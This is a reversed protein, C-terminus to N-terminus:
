ARMRLCCDPRILRNRLLSTNKSTLIMQIDTEEAMLSLVKEALGYHYFADFEDMFLFRVEKFHKM